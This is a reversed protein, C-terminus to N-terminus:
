DVMRNSIFDDVFIAKILGGPLNRLIVLYTKLTKKQYIIKNCGNVFSEKLADMESKIKKGIARRLIDAKALSFGTLVQVAEMVQEQYIMIWLNGRFRTRLSCQYTTLKNNHKRKIYSPINEM